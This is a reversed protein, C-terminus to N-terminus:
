LNSYLQNDANYYSTAKNSNLGNVGFNKILFVNGSQPYKSLELDNLNERASTIMMHELNNGVFCCNTVQPVPLKILELLEGTLPNWRSVGSGGYLAVWIMGESDITIGDPKGMELPINIIIKNFNIDGTQHDYHYCQINRDPTHVFYLLSQDLSWAMGNPITLNDILKKAVLHKDIVFLGGENKKANTNMLGVLIRGSRDAIGDNCRNEPKQIDLNTLWIQDGNELNLRMIGGQVGLLLGGREDEIAVSVRKNILWKQLIQTEWGLEFVIHNEIDVWICSKRAEHWLPSEGLYCQANYLTTVKM